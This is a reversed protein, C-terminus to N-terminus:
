KVVYVLKRVVVWRNEQLVEKFHESWVKVAEEGSQVVGNSDCVKGLCEASRDVNALGLNTYIYMYIYLDCHKLHSMM